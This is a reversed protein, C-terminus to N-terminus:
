AITEEYADLLGVSETISLRVFPMPDGDDIRVWLGSFDSRRYVRYTQDNFSIEVSGCGVYDSLINNAMRGVQRLMSNLIDSKM